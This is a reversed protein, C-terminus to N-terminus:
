MKIKVKLGEMVASLDMKRANIEIYRLKEKPKANTFSM